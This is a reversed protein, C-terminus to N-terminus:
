FTGVVAPAGNFTAQVTFPSVSTVQLIFTVANTGSNVQVTLAWPLTVTGPITFNPISVGGANCNTININRAPFTDGTVTCAVSSGGNIQLVAPKAPIPAAGPTFVAQAWSITSVLFVLKKFM